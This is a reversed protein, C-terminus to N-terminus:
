EVLFSKRELVVKNRVVDIVYVGTNLGTIVIDNASIRKEYVPSGKLNYIRVDSNGDLLQLNSNGNILLQVQKSEGLGKAHITLISTSNKVTLTFKQTSKCGSTNTYTATYIGAQSTTVNSLTVQNTSASFGNPGSWSWGTTATPSPGFVVTAGSTVTDTSINLWSGGNVQMSPVIATPTCGFAMDAYTVNNLTSGNWGAAIVFLRGNNLPVLCRSYATGIPSSIQTWSGTGNNTNTYLNGTGASSLIITGDMTVCFPSSGNPDFETGKDPANWSEINSSTKYYAGGVGVIEYTMLYSGNPMQTVVVMGPRQGSVAVDNVETSWNLGDTTSQHGLKQSYAADREDSYFCYLKNNVVMLYPEWVPQSGPTAKNGVAVTSVYTWTRGADTSQYLDIECSSRDYPLDLGACLLTGAAMGGIAQPLQYLFPEWRMGVGKHTDKVAGVLTWTRGSDTSEFIPFSAVGTTYQEFTAYMKGNSAQMARAYLAGPVLSGAPPTYMTSPGYAGASSPIFIAVLIAAWLGAAAFRKEFSKEMRNGGKYKASIM